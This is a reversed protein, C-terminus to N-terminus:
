PRFPRVPGNAGTARADAAIVAAAKEAIMYIASVLFFGPIRPFVSADVVRLGEVGHVKFDGTLVGGDARNGISCTCSAHHGWAHREVFEPLAAEPVDDGPLDERAVLGDKKLTATLRRALSIGAVVAKLDDGRSDNGEDFYRFNVDPPMRPDASRLTVEGATNNTHAKLIM